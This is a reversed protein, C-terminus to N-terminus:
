DIVVFLTAKDALNLIQHFPLFVNFNSIYITPMLLGILLSNPYILNRKNLWIILSTLYFTLSNVAVRTGDATILSFSGLFFLIILNLKLFDQPVKRFSFLLVIWIGGCWSYILWSGSALFQLISIEVLKPLQGIRSNEAFILFNLCSLILSIVFLYGYIKVNGFLEILYRNYNPLLSLFYIAFTVVLMTEVNTFLLILLYINKSKNSTIGALVGFTITLLDQSGFRGLLITLGPFLSLAILVTKWSSHYNKLNLVILKFTIIVLILYIVLYVKWGLIVGIGNLIQRLPDQFNLSIQNLHKSGDGFDRLLQGYISFGNRFLLIPILVFIYKTELLELLRRSSLSYLKGLM